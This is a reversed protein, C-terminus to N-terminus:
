RAAWRPALSRCLHVVQGLAPLSVVYIINLTVVIDYSMSFEGEMSRSRGRVAISTKPSVGWTLAEINDLPLM